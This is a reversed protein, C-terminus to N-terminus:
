GESNLKIAAKVFVTTQYGNGKRAHYAARERMQAASLGDNCVHYDVDLAVDVLKNFAKRNRRQWVRAVSLAHVWRALAQEQVEQANTARSVAEVIANDIQM